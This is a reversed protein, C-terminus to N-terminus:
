PHPRTGSDRNLVEMADRTSDGILEKCKPSRFLPILHVSAKLTLILFTYRLKEFAKAGMGAVYLQPASFLWQKPAGSPDAHTREPQWSVRESRSLLINHSGLVGLSFDM